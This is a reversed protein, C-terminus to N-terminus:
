PTVVRQTSYVGRVVPTIKSLLSPSVDGVEYSRAIGNENHGTQGEAGAKNYMEVAIQLQVNSYKAEMVDTYRLECILDSASDLYYQLLADSAVPNGLILKLTDLQAM